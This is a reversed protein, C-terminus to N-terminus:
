DEERREEKEEAEELEEELRPSEVAPSQLVFPAAAHGTELREEAIKQLKEERMIRELEKRKAEPILKNMKEVLIEAEKTELPLTIDRHHPSHIKVKGTKDMDVSNINCLRIHLPVFVSLIHGITERLLPKNELAEEIENRVTEKVDIKVMDEYLRVCFHPKKIDLVPNKEPM